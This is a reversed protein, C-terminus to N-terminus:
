VMKVQLPSKLKALQVVLVRLVSGLVGSCINTMDNM